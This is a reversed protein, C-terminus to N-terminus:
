LKDFRATLFNILFIKIASGM